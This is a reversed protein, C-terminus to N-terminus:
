VATPGPPAEGRGVTAGVPSTLNTGSSFGRGGVSEASEEGCPEVSEGRADLVDPGPVLPGPLVDGPPEPRVVGFAGEGDA